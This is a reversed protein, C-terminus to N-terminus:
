DKIKRTVYSFKDDVLYSISNRFQEVDKITVGRRIVCETIFIHFRQVVETEIQSVDKVIDLKEKDTMM